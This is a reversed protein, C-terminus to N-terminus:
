KKEKKDVLDWLPLAHEGCVLRYGDPTPLGCCPVKKCGPEDCLIEMTGTQRCKPCGTLTAEPNFPDPAELLEKTTGTWNCEKCRRKLKELKIM